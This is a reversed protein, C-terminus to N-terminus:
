GSGVAEWVAASVRSILTDAANGGLGDTMVVIVYPEASMVIAGDHRASDLNGTKNGVVADSPLGSPIGTRDQQQELWELARASAEGSVLEGRGILALVRAVDRASTYNDRGAAMADTDMMKRELRTSSLGLTSAEENIADMGMRDILVNAAVNDSQCVMLRALDDLTVVSGAGSGQLSGTGGVIDSAQLRYAEDGSLLGADVERLYEALIALKIMSASRMSRDAEIYVAGDAGDLPVYAFSTTGGGGELLPEVASRVSSAEAEGTPDGEAGEEPTDTADAGDDEADDEAAEEQSQGQAVEGTSQQVGDDPTASVDGTGGRLRLAVPICIAIVLCAVVIAALRAM